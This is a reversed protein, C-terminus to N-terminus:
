RAHQVLTAHRTVRHHPARRHILTVDILNGDGGGAEPPEPRLKSRAPTVNRARAMIRPRHGYGDITTGSLIIIPPSASVALTLPSM